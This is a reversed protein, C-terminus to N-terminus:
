YVGPVLRYRVRARYDQYAPDLSLIKEEQGIRLVQFVLACLYVSGNWITPNTILFGAYSIFYGAYIPHRVFAYPGKSQVGRNAPIIGYRRNLALKSCVSIFVGIMMVFGGLYAEDEHYGGPKVLMLFCTAFLSIVIPWVQTAIFQGWPRCVVLATVLAVEFLMLDYQPHVMAATHFRAFFAAAFLAVIM